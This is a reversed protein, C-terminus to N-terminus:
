RSFEVADRGDTVSPHGGAPYTERSVLRRVSQGIFPPTSVRAAVDTSVVGAQEEAISTVEPAEREGRHNRDVSDHRRPAVLAFHKVHFVSPARSVVPGPSIAHVGAAARRAARLPM